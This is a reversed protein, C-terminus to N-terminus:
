KFNFLRSMDSAPGLPSPQAELSQTLQSNVFDNGDASSTAQRLLKEEDDELHELLEDIDEEEEADSSTSDLFHELKDKFIEYDFSIPGSSEVASFDSTEKLFGSCREALETGVDGIDGEPEQIVDVWTEDDDGQPNEDSLEVSQSNEREQQLSGEKVLKQWAASLLFSMRVYRIPKGQCLDGFERPIKVDLSNLYAFHFRRFRIRHEVLDKDHIRLTFGANRVVTSILSPDYVLLRKLGKPISLVKNHYLEKEQTERLYAQFARQVDDGFESEHNVHALCEPDKALYEKVHHLKGNFVVAGEDQIAIDEDCRSATEIMLLDGEMTDVRCCTREFSQTLKVLVSVLLDEDQIDGMHNLSVVLLNSREKAQQSIIEPRAGSWMIGRFQAVLWSRVKEVDVFDCWVRGEVVDNMIVSKENFLLM